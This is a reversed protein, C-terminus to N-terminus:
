LLLLVNVALMSLSAMFGSSNAKCLLGLPQCTRSGSLRGCAFKTEFRLVLELFISGVMDLDSNMVERNKHAKTAM